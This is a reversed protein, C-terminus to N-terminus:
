DTESSRAAPRWLDVLVVFLQLGFVLGFVAGAAAIGYVFGEALRALWWGGFDFLLAIMPLPTLVGRLAPPFRAKMFLLGVILTFIPISLMHMHSVLVLRPIDYQPPARTTDGPATTTPSVFKSLAAYDVDWEDPGFPSRQSIETEATQAHCRLCSRIMVRRPTRKGEGDDLEPERGGKKLWGALVDFDADSRFYQRMETGIMTLMRSPIPKGERIELGSYVARIDDISMGEVGDALQHRHYINLVATLYGAGLIILFGTLMVRGGVPMSRLRGTWPASTDPQTM